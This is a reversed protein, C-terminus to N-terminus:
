IAKLQELLEVIPINIYDISSIDSKNNVLKKIMNNYKIEGIIIAGIISNDKIFLRMYSKDDLPDDVLIHTASGEDIVGISFVNLNFANMNTVPLIETYSVDKGVINYGSIKGQEIAIPWLGGVKGNYETIDGAAYVNDLNTRMHDDVIVGMNINIATNEYLKKNSRIGVSYIVMDCAIYDGSESQSSANRNKLLAGDVKTDGSIAVVETNLVVKTNTAEVAKKLIESARSDLQRPMLRDMFEVIVVEKGHSCFAWAAELNQIGGGIHLISNKNDVHEKIIQINNLNRITYVNEKDIGEIPPKFNSAGNALLLKSYKITSGDNLSVTDKDTDVSVVEKGLYLNVNRQEYWEKKQLYIKEPDLDDFLSKTLRTRYYPYIPENQILHININSDSERIAKIANFAAVGGGIVVIEHNMNNVAM